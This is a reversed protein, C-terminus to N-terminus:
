QQCGRRCDARYVGQSGDQAAMAIAVHVLADDGVNQAVAHFGIHNGHGHLGILDDDDGLRHINFVCNQALQVAVGYSLSWKLLSVGVACM